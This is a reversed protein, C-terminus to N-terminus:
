KKTNSLKKELDALEAELTHLKTDLLENYEQESIQHIPFWSPLHFQRFFTSIQTEEPNNQQKIIMEQRWNNGATYIMQLGSCIAGFMFAGSPATKPGGLHTILLAYVAFSSYVKRFVASLLGGTTAGAMTSSILADVDKTQSDKLGFQANKQRQYTIFTERVM